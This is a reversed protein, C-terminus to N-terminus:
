QKDESFEEIVKDQEQTKKILDYTIINNSILNLKEAYENYKNIYEISVPSNPDILYGEGKQSNYYMKDTVWNGDNFVVCNEEVSFLDKGLAYPNYFGFMNGLTPAADYMGAVTKVETALKNNKSWIIFPVKRNLEYQYFDVKVYDEYTEDKLEGTEPIYNYYRNFESKKLKADHDGYIVLVTDELIGEADLDNIFQGLAEDAYHASRIYSGMKTGELYPAIEETVEGTEENVKQYKLTVDFDSVDVIEGTEQDVTTFPTHNSLMILTAMFNQNNEKNEKIIPIAQRFFSKDSLGFGIIEDLEFADSYAYFKKWGLKEHVINRNWFSAKNAHMSFTYYGKESLLKPTSVYERDWYSIFVAGSSSPLLSTNFTFESDSSTGVGDQPYFNSFYLGENALKNLNPLIERDDIKTNILFNQISEAHIVIINKGKFIDTYQNKTQPNTNEEYYERFEKAANDYGFLPSIKPKISTFADNFQYVYIGFRMVIYERNWQKGLRSYDVSNLSSFFFGFTIAGVILITLATLYGRDYDNSKEFYKRRKLNVYLIIFAIPQWLYTLDKYELVNQVVADAVDVVQLSTALMSFSAFSVYNTYYLCNILCDATFIISWTMWYAFRRKPKLFYALAGVVLVIAFDALISRYETYNKVTLFRLLTSNFVNSLVYFIFLINNKCFDIFVDKSKVIIKKIKNLTDKM